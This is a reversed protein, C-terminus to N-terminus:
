HRAYTLGALRGFDFRSLPNLSARLGQLSKPSKGLQQGVAGLIARVRPPESPAAKLLREFCGKQRALALLRSITEQPSLESTEARRRLFDLLAADSESLGTWSIPRRLHTITEDGLLKRPLSPATTAVEGRAPQQTTFGLLGAASIGSPFLARDSAALKQIAAPNPQSQGFATQRPRYYIGKSLRRIEGARMLRSLAQAVAAPPLDTFDAYRWLREGGRKIRRRVQTTTDRSGTTANQSKM